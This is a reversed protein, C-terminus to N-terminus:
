PTAAPLTVPVLAFPGRGDAGNVGQVGVTVRRAVKDPVPLSLTDWLVTGDEARRPGADGPVAARAFAAADVHGDAWWVELLGASPTALELAVLTRDYFDRGLRTVTFPPPAVPVPPLLLAQVAPGLPGLQGAFRVQARYDLLRAADSLGLPDAFAITGPLGAAALEHVQQWLAPHSPSQTLRVDAPAVLAPAPGAAGHPLRVVLKPWALAEVTGTVGAAAVAAALFASPDAPASGALDLVVLGDGAPTASTAHVTLTRPEGIRRLIRVRGAVAAVLPDPVWAVGQPQRLRVTAGDHDAAAFAPAPPGHDIPLDLPGAPAGWASVRDFGDRGRLRVTLQAQPADLDVERYATGAGPEQGDARGRAEYEEVLPAAGGTALTEEVDVAVVSADGSTWRMRWAGHTRGSATLRIAPDDIAPPPPTAVGPALGAPLCVVNSPGAGGSPDVVRYAVSAPASLLAGVDTEDLVSPAHDPGDVFGLGCLVAHEWRAALVLALAQWANPGGAHGPAGPPEAWAEPWLRRLDDWAPEDLLPGGPMRTAASALDAAATAALDIRALTEWALPPPADLDLVKLMGLTCDGALVTIADLAAAHLVVLDGDHVTRQAVVAGGHQALALATPGEYHFRAAHVVSGLDHTVPLFPSSLVVDGRDAWFSVPVDTVAAPVKGGREQDWREHDLPARELVVTGPVLRRHPALLADGTFTWRLRNGKPADDVWGCAALRLSTTM